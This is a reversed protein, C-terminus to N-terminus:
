AAIAETVRQLLTQISLPGGYMWVNSGINHVHGAEVFALGDWVPNGPLQDAVIDDGPQAVYLFNLDGEVETLAEVNSETFGYEAAPADWANDLGVQELAEVALANDTSLRFGQQTNQSGALSLIFRNTDLEAAEIEAETETLATSLDELVTDAQEVRGTANALDVLIQSMAEWQGELPLGEFSITPAYTALQDYNDASRLEDTVILDPELAAISEISPAARTGVDEVDDPLPVSIDVWDNYGEIDAVGVPTVGLALLDETYAWELSVVRVAPQDLTVPGRPTEITVPGTEAAEVTATDDGSSDDDAADDDDSGCSAAALLLTLFAAFVRTRRFM